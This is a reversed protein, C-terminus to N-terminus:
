GFIATGLRRVDELTDHQSRTSQDRELEERRRLLMDGFLTEFDDAPTNDLDSFVTEALWYRGRSVQVFRADLDIGARVSSRQVQWIELVRDTLVEIDLAHGTECLIRYATDASSDEQVLGWEALGFLGRGVRVFLNPLRGIHAHINHAKTQQSAPLRRNVHEAIETFHMPKGHQRLVIIIDDLRKSLWQKLGYNGEDNLVIDPHANLCASLFDQPIHLGIAKGDNDSAFRTQVETLSLPAYAQAVIRKLIKCIDHVSPAYVAYPECSLTFMRLDKVPRIHHAFLLIFALQGDSVTTNGDIQSCLAEQAVHLPIVGNANQLAQELVLIIPEIARRRRPHQLKNLAKKEIQRIRERTVGLQQGVEELTRVSQGELGYRLRLVEAQRQDVQALMEHIAGTLSVPQRESMKEPPTNTEKTALVEQRESAGECRDIGIDNMLNPVISTVPLTNHFGLGYVRLMAAISAIDARQFGRSQLDAVTYNCLHELHEIGCARLKRYPVSNPLGLCTLPLNAPTKGQERLKVVFQQVEAINISQLVTEIEKIAKAGMNRIEFLNPKYILLLEGLTYINARWLANMTRISLNLFRIPFDQIESLVKYLGPFEAILLEGKEPVTSEMEPPLTSEIPIESPLSLLASRVERLSTVGFHRIVLLDIDSQVALQGITHIGGRSLAHLTRNSLDLHTVALAAVVPPLDRRPLTPQQVSLTSSDATPASPEVHDRQIRPADIADESTKLHTVATELPQKAVPLMQYPFGSESISKAQRSGNTRKLKHFPISEEFETQLWKYTCAYKHEEASVVSAVFHFLESEIVFQPQAGEGDALLAYCYVIDPWLRARLDQELLDLLANRESTPNILAICALQELTHIGRRHLQETSVATLGMPSLPLGDLSYVLHPSSRDSMPMDEYM